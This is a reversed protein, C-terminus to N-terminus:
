QDITFNLSKIWGYRAQKAILSMFGKPFFIIGKKDKLPIVSAYKSYNDIACLLFRNGKNFKSLLQVNPLGAGWINDIFCSYVKRKEYNRVVPKHLQESM